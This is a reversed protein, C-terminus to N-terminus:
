LYKSTNAFDLVRSIFIGCGGQGRYRRFVGVRLVVIGGLDLGALGALFRYAKAINAAKVKTFGLSVYLPNSMTGALADGLKYLIVFGLFV